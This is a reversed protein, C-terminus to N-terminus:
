CMCLSQQLPEPQITTITRLPPGDVNLVQAGYVDLLQRFDRRLVAHEFEVDLLVLSAGFKDHWCTGAHRPVMNILGKGDNIHRTRSLM